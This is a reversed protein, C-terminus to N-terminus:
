HQIIIKKTIWQNDRTAIRLLYVGSPLSDVAIDKVFEAGSLVKVGQISSLQWQGLELETELNIRTNAPNPYIKVLADLSNPQKVSLLNIKEGVIPRMMPTGPVSAEQWYGKVNYFLNPNPLEQGNVRYNRDFGVNLLFSSNQTWGIYFRGDVYVPTDLQYIFFGNLTDTYEPLGADNAYIVEDVGSSPQGPPAISKWV